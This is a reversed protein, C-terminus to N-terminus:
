KHSIYWNYICLTQGMTNGRSRRSTISWIKKNSRKTRQCTECIIVEKQVYNRIGYYYLHQWIMAEARDMGPHLLHNHYWNLVYNQLISMIIIKDECLILNHNLNSWGRFNGTQYTGEKYKDLLGDIKQQYIYPSNEIGMTLLRYCYKEWLIIINM